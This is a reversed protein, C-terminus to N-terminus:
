GEDFLLKLLSIGDNFMLSVGEVGVFLETKDLLKGVDICLPLGFVVFIGENFLLSENTGDADLM